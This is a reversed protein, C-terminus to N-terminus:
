PLWQDWPDKRDWHSWQDQRASQGRLIGPLGRDWPDRRDWHNWQDQRALQRRQIGPLGQDWRAGPNQYSRDQRAWHSLRDWPDM